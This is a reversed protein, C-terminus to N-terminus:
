TVTTLRQITENGYRNKSVTYSHLLLVNHIFDTFVATFYNMAVNTTSQPVIRRYHERLVASEVNFVIRNDLEDRLHCFESAVQVFGEM